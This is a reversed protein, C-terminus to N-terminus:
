DADAALFADITVDPPLGRWALYDALVKGVDQHRTDWFRERGTYGAPTVGEIVRDKGDQLRRFAARLTELDVGLASATDTDFRNALVHHVADALTPHMLLARCEPVASTGPSPRAVNPASARHILANM